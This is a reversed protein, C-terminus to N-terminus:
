LVSMSPSGCSVLTSCLMPVLKSVAELFTRKNRAQSKFGEDFLERRNASHRQAREESPCEVAVCLRLIHEVFAAQLATGTM